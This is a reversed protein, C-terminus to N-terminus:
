RPECTPSRTTLWTASNSAKLYTVVRDGRQYVVHGLDAGCRSCTGDGAALHVVDVLRPRASM